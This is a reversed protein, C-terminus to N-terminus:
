LYFILAFWFISNMRYGQAILRESDAIFNDYTTDTEYSLGDARMQDIAARFSKGQQTAVEIIRTAEADSMGEPRCDKVVAASSEFLLGVLFAAATLAVRAAFGM